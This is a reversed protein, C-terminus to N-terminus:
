SDLKAEVEELRKKKTKKFLGLISKHLKQLDLGKSTKINEEFERQSKATGYEFDRQSKPGSLASAGFPSRGSESEDIQIEGPIKPLKPDLKKNKLNKPPDDSESSSNSKRIPSDM